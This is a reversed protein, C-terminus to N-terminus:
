GNLLGILEDISKALHNVYGRAFDGAGEKDAYSLGGYLVKNHLYEKIENTIPGEELTTATKIEDVSLPCLSDQNDPINAKEIREEAYDVMGTSKDKYSACDARALKLLRKMDEGMILKLKRFDESNSQETQCHLFEHYRVLNSVRNVIEEELNLKSLIKVTKDAGKEAHKPFEKGEDVSCDPKAIDHFLAALNLVLDQSKLLKLTTMTHSWCDKDIHKKMKLKTDAMADLSPDIYKLLDQDKMFELAVLPRSTTMIQAFITGIKRPSVSGLKEKTQPIASTVTSHPELGYEGIYKAAHLIAIPSEEFIKKSRNYPSRLVKNKLDDLGKFPDHFQGTVSQAIADVTFFKQALDQVLSYADVPEIDITMDDMVFTFGDRITESPKYNMQLRNLMQKVAGPTATAMVEINKSVKGLYRDRVFDGVFYMPVYNGLARVWDTAKRRQNIKDAVEPRVWMKRRRVFTKNATTVLEESEAQVKGGASPHESQKKGGFQAPSYKDRGQIREQQPTQKNIYEM